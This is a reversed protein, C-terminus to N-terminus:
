VYIGDCNHCTVRQPSYILEVTINWLPVHKFVRQPRIDRFRGHHKCRGCRPRYRRDPALHIQIVDNLKSSSIIKFGQLSITEKLITNILM